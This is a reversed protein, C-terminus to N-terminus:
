TSLRIAEVAIGLDRSDGIPNFFSALRSSEATIELVPGRAPVTIRERQGSKFRMSTRGEGCRLEVDRASLHNILQLEVAQVGAPVPFVARGSTWRHTGESAHWGSGGHAEFLYPTQMGIDEDLPTPTAMYCAGRGTVPCPSHTVLFGSRMLREVFYPHQFGLECWGFKRTSRVSIGDLRPGWPFPVFSNGVEVIPEGAFLIFGGPALMPRLKELVAAHDFAHHFAEFFLIRDFKRDRVADGFQGKQLEIKIQLSDCQAQVAALYREDIDVIAVECGMRALQISLQGEGAGYELVSAGARVDLNRLIWGWSLMFDAVTASDGYQYPTPASVARATDVYPTRENVWPDYDTVAALDSYLRKAEAAYEPSFPDLRQLEPTRPNDAYVGCMTRAAEFAPQTQEAQECYALLADVSQLKIPETM